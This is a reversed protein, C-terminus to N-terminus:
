VSGTHGVEMVDGRTTPSSAKLVIATHLRLLTYLWFTKNMANKVEVTVWFQKAGQRQISISVQGV